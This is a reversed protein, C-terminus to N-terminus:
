MLLFPAQLEDLFQIDEAILRDEIEAATIACQRRMQCRAHWASTHQPDISGNSHYGGSALMLCACGIKGEQESIDGLEVELALEVDDEGVGGKVPDLVVLQQKPHQIATELRTTHQPEIEGAVAITGEKKLTIRCAM